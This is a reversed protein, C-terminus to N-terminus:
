RKGPTLHSLNNNWLAFEMLFPSVPIAGECLSGQFESGVELVYGFCQALSRILDIYSAVTHPLSCPSSVEAAYRIGRDAGKGDPSGGGGEDDLLYEGDGYFVLKQVVEGLQVQLAVVRARLQALQGRFVETDLGGRCPLHSSPSRYSNCM